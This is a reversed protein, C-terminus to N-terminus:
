YLAVLNTATTGTAYVKKVQIPLIFGVASAGITFTVGTGTGVMDVKITGAGGVLIGRAQNALNAGDNPTIAAANAAPATAKLMKQDTLLETDGNMPLLTSFAQEAASAGALLLFSVALTAFLKKM